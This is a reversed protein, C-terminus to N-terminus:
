RTATLRRYLDEYLKGQVDWSFNQAMGNEILRRWAV